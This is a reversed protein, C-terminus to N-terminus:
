QVREDHSDEFLGDLDVFLRCRRHRARHVSSALIPLETGMCSPPRHQRWEALVPIAHWVQRRILPDRGDVISTRVGNACLRAGEVFADHVAPHAAWGALILHVPRNAVAAAECAGRFMPFPHAKAHHSLRGVYLFAVEDNTVGLSRRATAREEANAPRFRDVDVGLPITELHIPMPRAPGHEPAVRLHARLYDGYAQTVERVMNAVARSTCVLADYAEFPATVLSRLLDIAEPSCLTHTVGSLAFAHRGAQQRAWAFAPDPPQPSHLITAPPAPLFSRHFEGSDIIRLTRPQTRTALHNRWLEVLSDAPGRHRLLATLESFTGHRLYAELFAQGAVQRGMLGMAKGGAEVYADEHYFLGVTPQASGAM